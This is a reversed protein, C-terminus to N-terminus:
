SGTLRTSAAVARTMDAPTSWAVAAAITSRAISANDSRCDVHRGASSTRSSAAATGVLVPTSGSWSVTESSSRASATITSRMTSMERGMGAPASSRLSPRGTLSDATSWASVVASMKVWSVRMASQAWSRAAVPPISLASAMWSLTTSSDGACASTAAATAPVRSRTRTTPGAPVPLVVASAGAM